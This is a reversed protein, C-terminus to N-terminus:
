KKITSTTKAKEAQGTPSLAATTVESYLIAAPKRFSDLIQRVM